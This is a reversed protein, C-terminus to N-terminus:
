FRCYPLFKGSWVIRVRDGREADEERQVDVKFDIASMIGDGFEEHVLEKLAPGYVSLVENFRYLLPDSSPVVASGKSPATQLWLKAVSPLQFIRVVKEAEEENMQMQGLCAATTWEKSLGIEAAIDAWRLGLRIKQQAILQTVDNRSNIPRNPLGDASPVSPDSEM